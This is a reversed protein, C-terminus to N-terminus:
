VNVKLLSSGSTITGSGVVSPGDYVVVSDGQVALAEGSLSKFLSGTPNEIVFHHGCSTPGSDGKTAVPQGAVSFGSNGTTITGTWAVTNSHATCTGSATCGKFAVNKLPM